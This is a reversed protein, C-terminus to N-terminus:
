RNKLLKLERHFIHIKLLRSNSARITTFIFYRKKKKKRHIFHYEGEDCRSLSVVIVFIAGPPTGYPDSAQIYM